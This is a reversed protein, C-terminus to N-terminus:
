LGVSRYVAITRDATTEWSLDAIRSQGLTVQESRMQPDCLYSRLLTVLPALQRTPVLGQFDGLIESLAGVRSAVLPAGCALAEVPPLGFGEYDSLYTVVTAAGYLAPLDARPVYGLIVATEPPTARVAGALVMPINLQRCAAALLHVNKRPEITGVQLVFTPPLDYRRRADIVQCEDAPTMDPAPALWTVTATRGLRNQVREATFNSVAIVQDARRLASRILQREVRARLRPGAAPVDFVSLDHVTTILPVNRQRPLDVDLGHVAAVHGFPVLGQLMRKVGASGPRQETPITPPLEGAASGQVRVRIGPASETRALATVLNRIYTQVGSGGASLALANLGM